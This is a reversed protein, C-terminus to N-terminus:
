IAQIGNKILNTFVRNCQDKDAKVLIKGDTKDKFIIEANETEKFLQVAAEVLESIKIEEMVAKPMKAFASFESAINSLTEIQEILMASLKRVKEKLEEPDSDAITRQLHQISLKMPTLPNKIEHAVQKAMERWASERESKALKEASEELEAIMKNYENVLSGIEDKEKWEIPENAKGFKIKSFRQQIIRLPKTVLNSIFLAAITSFAFLIVYVNILATIYLSIEKEQESQKAFYPLNLYAMLIGQKNYFPQYSSYYQLNGVNEKLVLDSIETSVVSRFARPNMKKSVIGEEFMRPQSSAYLNGKLDYLTIDTLFVNSLKKLMHSSWDKYNESFGDLEGFKGNLEVLVSKTRQNLTEINQAEFQNKVFVFTGIGFALLSILVVMVLLLQIRANLSTNMLRRRAVTERIFLFILLMLSFFAFFYSNTTFAGRVTNQQMSLVVRTYDVSYILHHFNNEALELFYSDRGLPWSYTKEYAYKGSRTILKGNKYVAYSYDSLQNNTKVSKDLLLEPYGIIDPILKPEMEIYLLAPKRNIGAPAEIKIKAIYRTRDKLNEIFFLDKCITAVGKNEIQQDFYSNNGHVPDVMKILPICASDVVSILIDFREWYGSLYVQRIRQELDLSSVPPSFVMTKLKNDLAIKKTIDVFLNEAVDDQQNSLREAYVKRLGIEKQEEERLFLHTSVISFCIIFALGYSFSYSRKRINLIYACFFIAFPWCIKIWDVGGAFFSYLLSLGFILPICVLFYRLHKKFRILEAIIKNAFIYYSFFLIGVGVFGTYSYVSLSFLDSIRFSIHSNQVMSAILSNIVHSFLILFAFGAGASTMFNKFTTKRLEVRKQFVLALYFTLSANILIDGLYGFWFSDANGFVSADYLPTRYFVEPFHDLIMLFRLALVSGAFVFFLTNASFTEEFRFCEKKLFNILLIFFLLWCCAIGYDIGTFPIDHADIKLEFLNQGEVTKVAERYSDPDNKGSFEELAATKPMAFWDPFFNNLYKNQYQYENKLLILAIYNRTSTLNSPHKIVEYWGNRLKALSNDLCIEKRYNEVAPSHDSWFILSDNEYVLYVIGTTSYLNEFEKEKERFLTGSSGKKDSGAIEDLGNKAQIELKHLKKQFSSIYKSVPSDNLFGLIM